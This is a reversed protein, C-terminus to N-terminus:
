NLQEAANEHKTNYWGDKDIYGYQEIFSDFDPFNQKEVRMKIRFFLEKRLYLWQRYEKQPIVLPEESIDPPDLSPPMFIFIFNRVRCYVQVITENDKKERLLQRIDKTTEQPVVDDGPLPLISGDLDIVKVRQEDIDCTEDTDKTKNEEM